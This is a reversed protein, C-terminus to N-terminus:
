NTLIQKEEPPIMMLEIQSQKTPTKTTPKQPQKQETQGIQYLTWGILFIPALIPLLLIRTLKNRKKTKTTKPM